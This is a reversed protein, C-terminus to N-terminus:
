IRATVEDYVIGINAQHSRGYGREAYPPFSPHTMVEERSLGQRVLEIVREKLDELYSRLRVIDEMTSLSGHGPVVRKVRMGEVASLAAIWEGCNANMMAPYRGVFLLDSIYLIEEQPIYVTSSCPTHGGRHVVELTLDGLELTLAKDFLIQPLTIRLGVLAEQDPQQRAMEALHETSWEKSLMSQMRKGCLLHAIKPADFIQNGFVHDTHFHTNIVYIIKKETITRIQHYMWRADILTRSTDIVVAGRESLVLGTNERVHDPEVEGQFAYCRSSLTVVKM